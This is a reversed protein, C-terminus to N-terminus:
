EPMCFVFPHSRVTVSSEFASLCLKRLRPTEPWAISATHGVQHLSSASPDFDACTSSLNVTARRRPKDGREKNSLSVGVNTQRWSALNLPSEANLSVSFAASVDNPIANARMRILAVGSGAPWESTPREAASSRPRTIRLAGKTLKDSRTATQQPSPIGTTWRRTKGSLALRICAM